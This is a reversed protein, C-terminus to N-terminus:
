FTKKRRWRKPRDLPYALGSADLNLDVLTKALAIACSHGELVPVDWGMDHLRNQLLPRLWFTGSCGFTIVDAGDEEIAAVAECVAAELAASPEGRLAKKKEEHIDPDDDSYPPRPHPFNINRISACRDAFRHQVVLDYYYMNHSEALDLVSFRNGLMSAVHMQSFACSTVPIGYRKGIERAAPAGPEGGGLLVIANYKGSECAEKVVPLRAAAAYAFEERNEVAWDGYTAMSVPPLEWEVDALLDKVDEYNMMREEKTGEKASPHGTRAPLRFSRILAFRYKNHATM